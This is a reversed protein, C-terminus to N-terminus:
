SWLVSGLLLMFIMYYRKNGLKFITWPRYFAFANSGEKMATQSNIRAYMPGRKQRVGSAYTTTAQLVRLVLSHYRVMSKNKFAIGGVEANGRLKM